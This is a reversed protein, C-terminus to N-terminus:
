ATVRPKGFAAVGRGGGSQRAEREAKIADGVPANFYAPRSIHQAPDRAMVERVKALIIERARGDGIGADRAKGLWLDLSSRGSMAWAEHKASDANALTEIETLTDPADARAAAVGIPTTHNQNQNSLGPERGAYARSAGTKKNKLPKDPPDTNEASKRRKTEVGRKGAASRKEHTDHAAAYEASLRKSHIRGDARHLYEEIIPAVKADYYERDVRMRRAVWDPDDPITCGPTRWLLRLLRMYIGDEEITLHATDGEYDTVYLPMYPMAM